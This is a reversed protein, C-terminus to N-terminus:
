HCVWPQDVYLIISTADLIAVSLLQLVHKSRISIVFIIMIENLGGVLDLGLVLIGYGMNEDLFLMLFEVWLGEVHRTFEWLQWLIKLQYILCDRNRSLWYHLLVGVFIYKLELRQIVLHSIIERLCDFRELLHFRM